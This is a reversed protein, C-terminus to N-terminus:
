NLTFPSKLTRTRTVFTGVTRCPSFLFYSSVRFAMFINSFRIFIVKVNSNPKKFCLFWYWDGQKSKSYIKWQQSISCEFIIFKCSIKKLSCRLDRWYIIWKLLSRLVVFNSRSGAFIFRTYFLMMFLFKRLIDIKGTRFAFSSTCCLLFREKM